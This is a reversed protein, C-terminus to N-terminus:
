FDKKEYDVENRAVCAKLRYQKLVINLQILKMLTENKHLLNQSITVVMVLSSRKIM